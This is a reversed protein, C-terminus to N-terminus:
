RTGTNLGNQLMIKRWSYNKYQIYTLVEKYTVLSLVNHYVKWDEKHVTGQFVQQSVQVMCDIIKNISCFKNLSVGEELRRQSDSDYLIKYPAESKTHDILPPCEGVILSLAQNVYNTFTIPGTDKTAKVIKKLSETQDHM